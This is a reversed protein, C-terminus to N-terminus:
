KFLEKNLKDRKKSYNKDVIHPKSKKIADLFVESNEFKADKRAPVILGTQAIYEINEKSSLYSVFKHSAEKHKSNKSIAWGSADAPTVGPFVVIGFPFRATEKIKPYMWRGSLYFGLKGDIFMQALTSSGVQAPTPAYVGELSQYFAIGDKFGLTMIYPEAYFIDREFSTGYYKGNKHKYLVTKFDSFTWDSNLNENILNKNYYFVLNSIDRPIAYLKGGLSMANISQEYFNITDFDKLEELRHAYLPLYLNNIFIVDPETNSAFLLHMKQFYNQPVHLFNVHIDPNEKEFNNIVNAIIGTETITGWSSFTIVEKDSKSCSCCIIPIFFLILLKKLM